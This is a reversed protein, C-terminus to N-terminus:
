LIYTNKLYFDFHDDPKLLPLGLPMVGKQGRAQCNSSNVKYSMTVM